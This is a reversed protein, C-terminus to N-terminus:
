FENKKVRSLLSIYLEHAEENSEFYERSPELRSSLYEIVSNKLNKPRIRGNLYLEEFQESSHLEIVEGNELKVRPIPEEGRLIYDPIIIHMMIQAVPNIIKKTEIIKEPCFAKEVKMKITSPDDHIFLTEQGTSLSASMRGKGRLNSIVPYHIAIPKWIGLRQGVERALINARRQDMGMVCIDVGLHFIDAVQMPVYFLQSIRNEKVSEQRGAITLSRRARAVTVLRGIELVKRWYENDYVESAWRVELLGESELRDIDLGLSKWGHIMYKGAMHILKLDRNFRGNLWAHWDALFIIFKVDVSVLHKIKIVPLLGTAIHLLGSPEFGNYAVIHSKVKLLELLEEETIVETIPHNLISRLKSRVEM